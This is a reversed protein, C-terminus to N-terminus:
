AFFTGESGTAFRKATRQATTGVLQVQVPYYSTALTAKPVGLEGQGNTGWCWVTGDTKRACTTETGMAVQAAGSFPTGASALVPRAYNSNATDGRGLQGWNGRGWCWVSGDGLLACFADANQERSASLQKVNTLAGGTLSTVVPVPGSTSETSGLGAGLLTSDALTGNNPFCWVSSDTAIACSILQGAVM